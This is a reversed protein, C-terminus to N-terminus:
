SRRRRSSTTKTLRIHNRNRPFYRSAIPFQVPQGNPLHTTRFQTETMGVESLPYVMFPTCAAQNFHSRTYKQTEREVETKETYAVIHGKVKVEVRNVGGKAGSPKLAYSLKSFCASQAERHRIKKLRKEKTSDQATAAAEIQDDLFTQQLEKAEKRCLALDTIAKKLGLKAERMDTTDPILTWQYLATGIIHLITSVNCNTQIGSILTKWFRVTSSAAALTDSWPARTKQRCKLEALLMARTISADIKNLATIQISAISGESARAAAFKKVSKVDVINAILHKQIAM